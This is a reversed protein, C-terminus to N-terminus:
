RLLPVAAESGALIEVLRAADTRALGGPNAALTALREVADRVMRDFATEAGIRRGAAELRRLHRAATELGAVMEDSAHAGAHAQAAPALLAEELMTSFREQCLSAGERRLAALTRRRAERQGPAGNADLDSFRRALLTVTEAMAGLDGTLAIEELDRGLAEHLAREATSALAPLFGLATSVVSVPAAAQRLLLRMGAELPGAGERAFAAFAARSAAEPPGDQHLAAWLLPANRWVACCLALIAPAAEPSLGALRWGPPPTPLPLAGAAPWLRAGLEGALALDTTSGAEGARGIETAAPGLAAEVADAIPVVANRPVEVVGPRWGCPPVLVPDLPLFLLRALRLPRPPRLRRLRPRVPDLLADAEGRQPLADLRAVVRALAEDPACALAARLQRTEAGTAVRTM